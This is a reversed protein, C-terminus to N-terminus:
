VLNFGDDAVMTTVPASGAVTSPVAQQGSTAAQKPAKTQRHSEAQGSLEAQQRKRLEQSVQENQRSLWSSFETSYDIEVKLQTAIQQNANYSEWVEKSVSIQVRHRKSSKEKIRAM